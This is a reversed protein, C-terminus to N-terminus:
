HHEEIKLLALPQFYCTCCFSLIVKLKEQEFSHELLVLEVQTDESEDRGTSPPSPAHGSDHTQWTM